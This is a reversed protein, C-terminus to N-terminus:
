FLFLNNNKGTTTCFYIFSIEVSKVLFEMVLRFVPLFHKIRIPFEERIFLLHGLAASLSSPRPHKPRSRPPRGTGRQWKMLACVPFSTHVATQPLHEPVHTPALAGRLGGSAQAQTGGVVRPEEAPVCPGWSARPPSGRAM